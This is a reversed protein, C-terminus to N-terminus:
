RAHRSIMRRTIRIVERIHSHGRRGFAAGDIRWEIFARYVLATPEAPPPVVRSM